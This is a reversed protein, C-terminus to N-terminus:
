GLIKIFPDEAFTGEDKGRCAPFSLGLASVRGAGDLSGEAEVDARLSLTLSTLCTLGIGAYAQTEM